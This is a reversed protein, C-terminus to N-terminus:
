LYAGRVGGNHRTCCPASSCSTDPLRDRFRHRIPGYLDCLCCRIRNPTAGRALDPHPVLLDAVKSVRIDSFLAAVRTGRRWSRCPGRAAARNPLIAHHEGAPELGVWTSPLTGRDRSRRGRSHSSPCKADTSQGPIAGGAEAMWSAALKRCAVPGEGGFAQRAAAAMRSSLLLSREGASCPLPGRDVPFAALRM